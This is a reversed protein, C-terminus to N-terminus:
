LEGWNSGIESDIKLPVSLPDGLKMEEAVIAALREADDRRTEFLLEDHIQLLLRAREPKKEEPTQALAAFLPADAFDTPAPVSEPIAWQSAIWGERKLRRWVNIMALKMMDAATGQIVANIAAREPFNLTKRGRAGRVGVLARRRGLATVVRGTKACDDLVRDFFELVGPYTDFFADIHKAAEKPDIGLAKSLGFATQGYVLGFNVAKAKRRMDPTVNEPEVNFIRSAVAAHVDRDELFAKRLEPDGSFHALIRLEIQSYDCSVLADYGLKPDPVFARRIFKGDESRAPVNQLNPDSSSLRGTATAEQNFTAYVRGTEPDTQLPLPELYTGRLKITKRLEVIKAPIPHESALEELVEADVSPGTKTKRVVRLKLEDFLLRQLQKPSNLNIESAFGSDAVEEAVIERIERELREQKELFKASAERFREVEVAIGAREMEALVEVLPTELETAVLKLAGSAELKERLIKSVCLPALVRDAAYKAVVAVPLADLETRKKGSGMEKKVDFLEADLYTQAVDTLDRRVDGSRLLYDALAVDLALGRVRIGRELLVLADYKLEFGIKALDSAELVPRLAELAERADLIPEGLPARFPLYFAESPELALALGALTAFRARVRGLDLEQPAIVAISLFKAAKTKEVLADLKSRDDVITARWQDRPAIEEPVPLSELTPFARTGVLAFDDFNQEPFSNPKPKVKAGYISDYFRRILPSLEDFPEDVEPTPAERRESGAFLSPASATEARRKQITDFLESQPAVGPGFTEALADIKGMLSRFNWYQFLARLRDPDVGGLKAAEWDLEVPVDDRLKVLERSTLADSKFNRLNEFRKGKLGQAAELVGELTKHQVLLESAVKPGILPVGPVNDVADGVLAQFDVVQSPEIGWDALLEPARYYKEKRLLYISTSDSLLQRADKDSTVLTANGGLSETKKALTALLDDAEFNPVVLAPIGMAKLFEKTFDFQLLLDDPTASRNAKYEPYIENRFTVRHADYACFLYDPKLKTMIALVDRVFGFVAGTPEGFSNSMEMGPAHFVQYILGHADIVCVTKGSLSTPSSM